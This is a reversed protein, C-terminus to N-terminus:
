KAQSTLVAVFEAFDITGDKDPDANQFAAKGHIGVKRAEKRDLTGDKDPDARQFRIRLADVFEKRDLTGDKDPDAQDFVRKSIGFKAAERRDVTGDKDPDAKALAADIQADTPDAAMAPMAAGMSLTLFTLLLTKKM